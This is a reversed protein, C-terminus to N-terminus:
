IFHAESVSTVAALAPIDLREAYARVMADRARLMRRNVEEVAQTM